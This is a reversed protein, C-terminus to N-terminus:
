GGQEEGSVEHSTSGMQVFLCGLLTFVLAQILGILVELLYTFVAFPVSVVIFAPSVTMMLVLFSLIALHGAFMNAFLRLSLVACKILIGLFELGAVFLGVARPCGAPYFNKLFGFPGLRMTGLAFILVLIIVALASTVAINGTAAKFAPVLGLLNLVLIFLFLGTFFPLWRRGRVKGLVPYVVDDRLFLVLWEVAVTIRRPKLAPGRAAVLFVASILGVALFVMLAHVSMGFPLPIAPLGPFPQLSSSDLVHELLVSSVDGTPAVVLFM